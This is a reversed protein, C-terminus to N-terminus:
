ATAEVADSAIEAARRGRDFTSLASRIDVAAEAASTSPSDDSTVSFSEGPNRVQLVAPEPSDPEHWPNRLVGFVSELFAESEDRASDAPVLVRRDMEHPIFEAMPEDVIVPQKVPVARKMVNAPATVQVTTYGRDSALRVSLGHNSSLRAASAVGLALVPDELLRNIVIVGDGPLGMTASMLILYTDDHWSGSARIRETSGPAALIGALEAVVGALGGVAKPSVEAPELEMVEVGREGVDALAIEMLQAIDMAVSPIGRRGGM